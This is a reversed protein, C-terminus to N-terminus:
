GLIKELAEREKPNFNFAGKSLATKLKEQTNTDRPDNKAIDTKLTLDKSNPTKVEDADIEPADVSVVDVMPKADPNMFGDGLKKSSNKLALNKAADSTGVHAALKEKIDAESMEKKIPGETKKRLSPGEKGSSKSIAKAPTSSAPFIKM